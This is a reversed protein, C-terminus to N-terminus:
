DLWADAWLSRMGPWAESLARKPTRCVYVPLWMEQPDALQPEHVRLRVPDEYLDRLRHLPWAVAVAPGAGGTPAWDFWANHGCYVPPAPELRTLRELAGAQGDDHALLVLGERDEAPLDEVVDDVLQALEGWGLRLLMNSSLADSLGMVDAQEAHFLLDPIPMLPVALPATWLGGALVVLVAAARLVLPRLLREFVCGGAALLLVFAPLLRDPRDSHSVLLVVLPIFVCGLLPRASRMSPALLLAGLGALWLPLNLPHVLAVALRAFDGPSLNGSRMVYESVAFEWSPWGHAFQWLLHPLAVLAAMLLGARLRGVPEPGPRDVAGDESGDEAEADAEPALRPRAVLWGVVLGAAFLLSSHKTELTLGLLVGPLLWSRRGPEALREALAVFLATWLFTELGSACLASDRVLLGPAVGVALGALGAAFRGGGLAIALRGALLVTGGAFLAPFLRTGLLSAGFLETSLRALLPVVPPLDVYGAALREGCALHYLERRHYGFGSWAASGLLTATKLIAFAWLLHPLSRRTSV